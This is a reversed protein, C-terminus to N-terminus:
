VFSKLIHNITVPELASIFALIGGAHQSTSFQKAIFYHFLRSTEFPKTQNPEHSLSGPLSVPIGTRTNPWPTMNKYM